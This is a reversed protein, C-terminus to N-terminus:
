VIKRTIKKDSRWNQAQATWSKSSWQLIEFRISLKLPEIRENIAPKVKKSQGISTNDEWTALYAKYHHGSYAWRKRSSSNIQRLNSIEFWSDTIVSSKAGWKEQRDFAKWVKREQDYCRWYWWRHICRSENYWNLIQQGNEHPEVQSVKGRGFLKGFWSSRTKVKFYGLGLLEVKFRM